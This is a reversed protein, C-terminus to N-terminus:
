VLVHWLRMRSLHLLCAFVAECLWGRGECLGVRQLAVVVSFAEPSRGASSFFSTVFKLM